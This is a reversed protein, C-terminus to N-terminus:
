GRRLLADYEDVVKGWRFKESARALAKKGLQTRMAPQSEVSDIAAALDISREFYVASEAAVERNFPNDHVVVCNGAAMAELLSPNTGGVSHGHLYALCHTRLMDLCKRDYVPGPLLVTKGQPAQKLLSSVVGEYERSSFGGIILLPSSSKSRFYAEIMTHINNEPELRAVILWYAGPLVSSVHEKLYRSLDESSWSSPSIASVGYPVYAAKQRFRQPISDLLRPNDLVLVSSFLFCAFWFSRVSARQLANFKMRKWELGDVNILIKSRSLRMLPLAYGVSTGLCYVSDCKMFLSCKVGFYWDYLAEFASRALGSRPFRFPFYMAKMEASHVPPAGEELSRSSFHVEYGKEVLRPALESVMTEFGGYNGIGRAGIIAIRPNRM